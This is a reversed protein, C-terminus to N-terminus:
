EAIGLGSVVGLATTFTSERAATMVVGRTSAVGKPGGKITITFTTSADLPEAPVMLVSVGDALLLPNGDILAV